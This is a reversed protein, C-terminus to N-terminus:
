QPKKRSAGANGTDKTVKSTWRIGNTDVAYDLTVADGAKLGAPVTAAESIAFKLEGDATKILLSHAEAPAPPDVSVITGSVHQVNKYWPTDASATGLALAFTACAVWIIRKM